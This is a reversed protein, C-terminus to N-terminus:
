FDTPCQLAGTEDMTVLIEYQSCDMKTLINSQMLFQFRLAEKGIIRRLMSKAETFNEGATGKLTISIIPFKGM